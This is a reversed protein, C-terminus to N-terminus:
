ETIIAKSSVRKCSPQGTWDNIMRDIRIDCLHNTGKTLPEIERVVLVVESAAHSGVFAPQNFNLYIAVSSWNGGNRVNMDESEAKIRGTKNEM